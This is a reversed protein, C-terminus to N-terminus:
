FLNEEAEGLSGKRTLFDTLERFSSLDQPGGPLRVLLEDRIRCIAGLRAAPGWFPQLARM